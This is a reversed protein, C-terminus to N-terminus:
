DAEQEAPAIGYEFGWKPRTNYEAVRCEAEEKSYPGTVYVPPGIPHIEVVNYQDDVTRRRHAPPPRAPTKSPGLLTLAAAALAATYLLALGVWMASQEAPDRLYSAFGGLCATGAGFAVLRLVARTGRRDTPWAPLDDPEPVREDCV